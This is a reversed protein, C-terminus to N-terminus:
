LNGEGEGASRCHLLHHQFEGIFYYSGTVLTPTFHQHHNRNKRLHSKWDTVISIKKADVGDVGDVGLCDWGKEHEMVTLVIEEILFSSTKSLLLCLCAKIEWLPRKSFALYVTKFSFSTKKQGRRRLIQFMQLMKRVGDVNHAGIFIFRRGELTMEQFRGPTTPFPIGRAEHLPQREHLLLNKLGLALTKNQLSYDDRDDDVAGLTFLDQHPIGRLACFDEVQRRCFDLSLCSMLPVERRTIGLKERLIASYGRGLIDEHDRSLSTLATLHPDLVNVADLRGGLGVELVLVQIHRHRRLALECFVLFLFEYYSPPPGKRSNWTKWTEWTKWTAEMQGLLEGAEVKEGGFVFRERPTLVHPSTWTGVRMGRAELLYALAFATEGKGNTGGITVIKVGRERFRKKFPGWLPALRFWKEKRDPSFREEGIHTALWTGIDM